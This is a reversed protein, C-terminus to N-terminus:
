FGDHNTERSLTAAAVALRAGEVSPKHCWDGCLTLNHREDYLGPANAPLSYLWRHLWIDTPIASCGTAIAFAEELEKQVEERPADKKRESM